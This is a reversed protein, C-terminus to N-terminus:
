PLLIMDIAFVFDGGKGESRYAANVVKTAEEKYIVDTSVVTRVSITPQVMTTFLRRFLVIIFPKYWSFLFWFSFFFFHLPLLRIYLRRM